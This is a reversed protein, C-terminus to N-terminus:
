KMKQRIASELQVFNEKQLKGAGIIDHRVKAAIIPYENLAKPTYCLELISQSHTDFRAQITQIQQLTKKLTAIKNSKAGAYIRKLDLSFNGSYANFYFFDRILNAAHVNRDNYPEFRILAKLAQEPTAFHTETLGLFRRYNEPIPFRPSQSRSAANENRIRTRLRASLGGRMSKPKKGVEIMRTGKAKRGAMYGGSLRKLGTSKFRKRYKDMITWVYLYGDGNKPSVRQRILFGLSFARFRAVFERASLVRWSQGDLIKQAINWCPGRNMDVDIGRHVGAQRMVAILTEGSDDGSHASRGKDNVKSQSVLGPLQDNM